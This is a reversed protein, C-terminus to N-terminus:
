NTLVLIVFCFLCVEQYFRTPHQKEDPSSYYNRLKCWESFTLEFEQEEIEADFLAKIEPNNRVIQVLQQKNKVYFASCTLSTATSYPQLDEQLALSETEAEALIARSDENADTVSQCYAQKVMRCSYCPFLTCLRCLGPFFKELNTVENLLAVMIERSSAAIVVHCQDPRVVTHMPHSAAQDSRFVSCPDRVKGQGAFLLAREALKKFAAAGTSDFLKCDLLTLESTFGRFLLINCRM